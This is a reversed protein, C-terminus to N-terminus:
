FIVILEPTSESFPNIENEHVPNQNVSGWIANIAKASKVIEKLWKLSKEDSINQAQNSISVITQNFIKKDEKSIVLYGMQNNQYDELISITLSTESTQTKSNNRNTLTQIKESITESSISMNVLSGEIKSTNGSANVATTIMSLGVLCGITLFKSKM